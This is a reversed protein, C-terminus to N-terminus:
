KNQTSPNTAVETSAQVRELHHIIRTGASLRPHSSSSKAQEGLAETIAASMEVANQYRADRDKALAQQIVLDIDSPLTPNRTLISPAPTNMHLMLVQLGSE